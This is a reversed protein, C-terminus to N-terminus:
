SLNDLKEKEDNIRQDIREKVDDSVEYDGVKEQLASRNLTDIKEDYNKMRM